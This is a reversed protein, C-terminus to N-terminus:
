GPPFFGRRCHDCYYYPRKIDVEGSRTRVRKRKQGKYHMEQQCDPCSPGPVSAEAELKVLAQTVAQGVQGRTKLALDEIESLTLSPQAEVQDLLQDLQAEYQALLQAKLAAQRQNM